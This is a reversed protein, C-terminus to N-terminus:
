PGSAVRFDLPCEALWDATTGWALETADGDTLFVLEDKLVDRYVGFTERLLEPPALPSLLCEIELASEKTARVGQIHEWAAPHHGRIEELKNDAALKQRLLYERLQARQAATLDPLRALKGDITSILDPNSNVYTQVAADPVSVPTLHWKQLGLSILQAQELLYDADTQIVVDFEHHCHPLGQARVEAAKTKAHQNLRRSDHVPTLFAYVRITVGGLVRVLEAENKVLKGLDETLKDRQKEYRDKIPLFRDPAYCQYACGDHSFGEIGLDGQDSSPIREFQGPAKYRMRLLNLCYEEWSPGDWDLSTQAM